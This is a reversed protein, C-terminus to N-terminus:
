MVGFCLVRREWWKVEDDDDDEGTYDDDDDEGDGDYGDGKSYKGKDDDDDDNAGKGQRILGQRRWRWAQWLRRQGQWIKSSATILTTM